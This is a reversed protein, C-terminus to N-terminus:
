TFAVIDEISNTQRLQRVQDGTPALCCRINGSQDRFNLTVLRQWDRFPYPNILVAYVISFVATTAGIGLALSLVAVLTFGPAKRLQRLAYRLDQFLSQMSVLGQRQVSTLM